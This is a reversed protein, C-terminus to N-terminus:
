VAWRSSRMNIHQAIKYADYINWIWYLPLLLFGIVAIVTLAVIGTLLFIVIGRGIEGDYIQGLGPVFFSLVAALGESKRELLMVRPPYQSM